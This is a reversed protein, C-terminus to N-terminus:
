DEELFNPFLASLETSQDETLYIFGGDDFDCRYFKGNAGSEKIASQILDIFSGDLWDSNVKLKTKYEKGGMTFGFNTRGRNWNEKFDDIILTPSFAGKSAIAFDHALDEYPSELYAGEWDFSVILGPFCAFLEQDSQILSGDLRRQVAEMDMGELIGTQQLKSIAQSIQQTTWTNQFDEESLYFLQQAHGRLEKAQDKTLLIFGVQDFENGPANLNQDAFLHLRYESSKDNLRKNFIQYFGPTFQLCAQWPNNITTDQVVMDLQFSLAHKGDAHTTTALAKVEYIDEWVLNTDTDFALQKIELNHVKESVQKILHRYVELPRDTAAPPDIL